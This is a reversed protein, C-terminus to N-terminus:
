AVHLQLFGLLLDFNLVRGLQFFHCAADVTALLELPHARLRVGGFPPLLQELLDQVVEAPHLELSAGSQIAGM